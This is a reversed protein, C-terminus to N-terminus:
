VLKESPDSGRETGTAGRSLRNEVTENLPTGIKPETGAAVRALNGRHKWIVFAALLATLAVYPWGVPEFPTEFESFVTTPETPAVNAELQSALLGYFHWTWIPLTGAALVSALGVYKWMGLVVLFVVLSGAAPLTLVPYVGALAGLGAAVGKGGKFGVWPSFMHGLVPAAVVALWLGSQGASLEMAASGLSGTALGFGVTAAAGKLADLAFCLLFWKFGLIRGLNTAGVNRSGLTRVDVGKLKGLLLAFPISGLALGLIGFVVAATVYSV